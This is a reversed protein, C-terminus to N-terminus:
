AHGDGGRVAEPNKVKEIDGNAAYFSWIEQHGITEM